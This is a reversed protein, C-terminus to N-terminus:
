IPRNEQQQQIIQQTKPTTEPPKKSKKGEKEEKEQRYKDLLEGVRNRIKWHREVGEYAYRNLREQVLMKEVYKVRDSTDPHTSLWAPPSPDDEKELVVMLNRVGDAAYGSAALLRTGFIDAEREMDRSYNLTILDGASSGLYPVFQTANALLNGGTMIQFSHSLVAHSLEHAMLGALEAESNTKLIAGANIFVKGGPLAFANLNDDMVVYFEYNFENRGAVAALKKGIERVYSLVEEDEILTLRKQFHKASSEGIAKEGQILLTVTEIASIPGGINGFFAYGIGGLVANGVAGLTLKSRLDNKYRQLNENALQLFEAALYNDPNFLAFRRATLSADLWKKAAMDAEVKAKVLPAENPYLTIANELVEQAQEKQGYEKLIKAYELHAPIFEPHQETLLKLPAIIKSQLRKEKLAEQYLRWYVAGGPQLYQPDYIAQPILERQYKIEAEFPKKAERYLKEAVTSQGCRYYRDAQALQQYLAIEESTPKPIFSVPKEKEQSQKAEEEASQQSDIEQSAASSDSNEKVTQPPSSEEIQAVPQPQPLTENPQWCENVTTTNDAPTSPKNPQHNEPTQSSSPTSTTETTKQAIWSREGLNVSDIPKPTQALVLLPSLEGIISWLIILSTKRILKM